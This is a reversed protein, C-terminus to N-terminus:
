RRRARLRVTSWASGGTVVAVVATSVLIQGVEIGDGHAEGAASLALGVAAVLLAAGAACWLGRRGAVDVAVRGSLALGAALVLLPVGEELWAPLKTWQGLGAVVVAVLASSICLGFCAAAGALVALASTSEDTTRDTRVTV